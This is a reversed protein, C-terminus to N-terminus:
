PKPDQGKLTYFLSVGSSHKSYSELGRLVPSHLSLTGQSSLRESPLNKQLFERITLGLLGTTTGTGERSGFPMEM